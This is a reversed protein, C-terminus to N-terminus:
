SSSGLGMFSLPDSGKPVSVTVGKWSVNQLAHVKMLELFRDESGVAEMMGEYSVAQLYYSVNTANFYTQSQLRVTGAQARRAALVSMSDAQRQIATANATARAKVMIADADAGM